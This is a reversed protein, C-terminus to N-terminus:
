ADSKLMVSPDVRTARRAPGFSALAVAGAVLVLAVGFAGADLVSVNDLRVFGSLVKMVVFAFLLGVAAGLGALKASQRMVLRVVAAATAGLAMRVAIEQGRQGLTYSLVGYLGCVGLALAIAGLFSGIWSALRLPFLQVGVMQDLPITEFMLPDSHIRELLPRLADVTVDAGPRGRVLLAEAHAGDPATPLYVQVAGKGAYVFETVADGAVGVVTLLMFAPARAGDLGRLSRVTDGVRTQDEEVPLRLTKGLPNEGPWLVRAAAASVIAAGSGERAEEPRFGRGHVIPIRLMSFYEASVYVYSVAFVADGQRVPAKPLQGFLPNRSTVVVQETGADAALAAAARRVVTRDSRQNISLV